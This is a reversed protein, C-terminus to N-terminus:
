SVDIKSANIYDSDYEDTDLVVRTSDYPFINLYRNLKENSRSAVNSKKLNSSFDNIRAYENEIKEFNNAIMMEYHIPFNRLSVDMPEENPNSCM